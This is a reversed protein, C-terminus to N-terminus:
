RPRNSAHVSPTSIVHHGGTQAAISEGGPRAARVDAVKASAVVPRHGGQDGPVSRM